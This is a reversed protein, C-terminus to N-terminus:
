SDFEIQRMSVERDIEPFYLTVYKTISNSKYANKVNESVVM